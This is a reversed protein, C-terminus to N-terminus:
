QSNSSFLSIMTMDTHYICETDVKNPAGACDLTLRNLMLTMTQPLTTSSQM